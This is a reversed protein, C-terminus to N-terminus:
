SMIYEVLHYGHKDTGHCYVFELHKTLHVDVVVVNM